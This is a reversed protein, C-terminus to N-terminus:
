GVDIGEEKGEMLGFSAIGVVWHFHFNTSKCSRLRRCWNGMLEVEKRREIERQPEGRRGRGGGRGNGGHKGGTACCAENRM